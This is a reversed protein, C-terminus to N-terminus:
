PPRREERVSATLLVDPQKIKVIILNIIESRQIGVINSLGTKLDRQDTTKNDGQEHYLTTRKNPSRVEQDRAYKRDGEDLVEVETGEHEQEKLTENNEVLQHIIDDDREELVM